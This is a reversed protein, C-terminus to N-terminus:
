RKGELPLIYEDGCKQYGLVKTCFNALEPVDTTFILETFGDARAQEVTKMLGIILAKANRGKDKEDNWVICVRLSKTYRVFLIPGSADEAVISTVNKNGIFDSTQWEGPHFKSSDIAAQLRQADSEEIPRINIV